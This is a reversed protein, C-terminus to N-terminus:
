LLKKLVDKVEDPHIADLADRCHRCLDINGCHYQAKCLNIHQEYGLLKPPAFGGWIVVAPVGMAAAAHHLGGDTTVVLAAKEVMALAERFTSTYVYDVGSLLWGPGMQVWPLDLEVLAQWSDPHWAKNFGASWDKVNPEVIVYDKRKVFSREKESLYIEGPKARFDENWYAKKKERDVRKIYPRRNPYNAIWHLEEGPIHNHAIKPNHLFTEDWFIDEGDGFVVRKGHKAYAEAADATSM